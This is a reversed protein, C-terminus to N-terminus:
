KVYNDGNKKIKFKLTKVLMRKKSSPPLFVNILKKKYYIWKSNGMGEFHARPLEAWRLHENNDKLWTYYIGLLREALYGNVRMEQVNYGEINKVADYKNLIKFLWKCYSNLISHNCVFINGFYHYNGSLYKIMANRYQPFEKEIINIILDIDQKRHNPATIYHEYVSKHMNEGVPMILDYESVFKEINENLYGLKILTRLDPYKYIKYAIKTCRGKYDNMMDESFILYRRYHFLGYYDAQTNKWGWYLATLECYSNNLHSIHDGTNDYISYYPSPANDAGVHIPVLFKIDEVHFLRHCCVFLKLQKM